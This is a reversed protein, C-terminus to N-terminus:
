WTKIGAGVPAVGALVIKARRDANRIARASRRLLRAYAAPRPHPKWFVVFNPENWIQWRRIPMPRPRGRWFEGGSGYRWVVVRLFKTWAASAGRGLPPLAPKRSLWSPTGYVVPQVAIGHEAAAAMESDLASFDYEGPSPECRSWYIPIRLTGVVGQMRALEGAAPPAQSVVGFFARSIPAAAATPISGYAACLVAAAAAAWARGCPLKVILAEAGTGPLPRAESRGSLLLPM